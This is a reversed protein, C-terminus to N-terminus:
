LISGSAPVHRHLVYATRCVSFGLAAYLRLSPVNAAQTGVALRECGGEFAAAFADVLAVGVGTQQAPTDVGVLDIIAAPSRDATLMAALFGVPKGERLAVFLRDGRRREVYSRIWERKVADAVDRPIAPDLHFRTYRFCSGAIRLVEDADAASLTRVSVNSNRRAAAARRVEAPTADLTVNTDVIYFGHGSLRAAAAIDTTACKAYVFARAQRGLAVDLAALSEDTAAEVRYVPCGFLDALWPDASVGARPEIM